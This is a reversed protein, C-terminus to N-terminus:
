RSFEVLSFTHYPLRLKLTKGDFSEVKTGFDGLKLTVRSVPIRYKARREFLAAYEPDPATMVDVARSPPVVGLKAWDFTIEPTQDVHPKGLHSVVALAKGDRVYCSVYVDSAGAVTAPNRWYGVFEAKDVGFRDYARVLKDFIGFHNRWACHITGHVLTGALSACTMRFQYAEVDEDGGNAKSLVDYPMYASNSIGFPLTSLESAFMELGYSDLIDKKGHLLPSSAQRIHEGNILHTTFSVAPVQVCDTNHIVTLPEKIGAELQVVALRRYFERMGRIPTGMRCGHDRNSCPHVVGFDLYIGKLGPHRRLVDRFRWMFFDSAKTSPCCDYVFHGTHTYDMAVEPKFTWEPIYAAVEPYRVSLFRSGTYFVPRVDRGECTTALARSIAAETKRGDDTDQDGFFSGLDGGGQMFLYVVDCTPRRGPETMPAAWSWGVTDFPYNSARPRVPTAQFGFSFEFAKGAPLKRAVDVTVVLRDAAKELTYTRKADSSWGDRTEYFFTWGKEENGTWLIPFDGLNQMGEGIAATRKAGWGSGGAAHLYKAFEPKLAYRVQLSANPARPTVKVDNWQMGDYEIWGRVAVDARDNGGRAELAAHHPANSVVALEACTAPAGGVLIEPPAAFMDEGLAKVRSPLLSKRWGYVRAYLSVAFGDKEVASRMPTFPPLVWDEHFDQREWEGVGPYSFEKASGSKGGGGLEVKWKGAANSRPFDFVVEGASAPKRDKVSGDPAVLLFEGSLPKKPTVRVRESLLLPTVAFLEPNLDYPVIARMPVRGDAELVHLLADYGPADTRVEVLDNVTEGASLVRERTYLPMPALSGDMRALSLTYRTKSRAPSSIESEQRYEGSSPDTRTSLRFSVSPAFDVEPWTKADSYGRGTLDLSSFGGLTSLTWTRAFNLRVREGVKPPADMGLTKWPIAAECQWLISDDIKMEKSAAYKWEGNWPKKGDRSESTGGAANATFRFRHGGCELWFEFSETGWAEPEQGDVRPQGEVIPDHPPFHTFSGLYLNDADYALRFGHPPLQGSKGTFNGRILQPLSGARGWAADDLRGDISPAAVGDPLQPVTLRPAASEALPRFEVGAEAAVEAPTRAENWTRLRSVFVDKSWTRMGFWGDKYPGLYLKRVIGPKFAMPQLASVVVRGDIYIRVAEGDWTAGLRYTRGLEIKWPFTHLFSRERDGFSFQLTNNGYANFAVTLRSATRLSMVTRQRMYAPDPTEFRVDFFVSGCNEGVLPAADQSWGSDAPGLVLEKGGFNEDLTLGGCAAQCFAICAASFVITRHM